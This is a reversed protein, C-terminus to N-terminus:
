KPPTVAMDAFCNLCILPNEFINQPHPLSSSSKRALYTVYLSKFWNYDSKRYITKIKEGAEKSFDM